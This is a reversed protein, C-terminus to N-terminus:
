FAFVEWSSFFPVLPRRCPLQTGLVISVSAVGMYGVMTWCVHLIHIGVACVWCLSLASLWAPAPNAQQLSWKIFVTQSQCAPIHILHCPLQHCDEYEQDSLSLAKLVPLDRQPAAPSVPSSHPNDTPM